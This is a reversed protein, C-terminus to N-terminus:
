IKNYTGQLRGKGSNKDSLPTKRGMVKWAAFRKEVDNIKEMGIDERIKTERSFYSWFIDKKCDKKYSHSLDTIGNWYQNLLKKTEIYFPESINDAPGKIEKLGLKKRFVNIYAIDAHKFSYSADDIAIIDGDKLFDQMIEIENRSVDLVHTSDQFFFNVHDELESLVPLGLYPSLSHYAVLKWHANINKDIANCLTETCVTRLLSGKEGNTEWSYSIGNYKLAYYAIAITSAGAGTEVIVYKRKEKSVEEGRENLLKALAIFESDPISNCWKPLMRKISLLFGQEDKQIDKFRGFYFDYM